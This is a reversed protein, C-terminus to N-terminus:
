TIKFRMPGTLANEAAILVAALVVSITALGVAVAVGAKDM